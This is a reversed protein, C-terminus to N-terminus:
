EVPKIEGLRSDVSLELLINAFIKVSLEIDLNEGISAPTSLIYKPGVSIEFNFILNYLSYPNKALISHFSQDM